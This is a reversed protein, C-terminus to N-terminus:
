LRAKSDTEALLGEMRRKWEEVLEEDIACGDFSVNASIGEDDGSIGVLFEGDRARVNQKSSRYDAVFANEGEALEGDVDYEGMRWGSRGVSSVGCTAMTPNAQVALEGQPIHTGLTDRLHEPLKTRLREVAGIYNMAIVRGAGRSGM